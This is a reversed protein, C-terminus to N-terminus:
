RPPAPSVRSRDLAAIRGRRWREYPDEVTSRRRRLAARVAAIEDPTANGRVTMDTM